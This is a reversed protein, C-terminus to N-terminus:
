KIIMKCSKDGAKIIYAGPNLKSKENIKMGSISFVEFNDHGLVNVHGDSVNILLNANNNNAVIAQIANPISGNEGYNAIVVWGLADAFKSTNKDTTTSSTDVQRRVRIGTTYGYVDSDKDDIENNSQHRLIAASHYNYTQLAGFVYPDKVTLQEDGIKLDSLQYTSGYLDTGRGAAILLNNDADLIGLGPTIALYSMTQATRVKSIGEEYMCIAKFGLNNVDWIRISIPGATASPKRLETIVIPTIGDPFPKDFKVNLTDTMKISSSLTRVECDLGGFNFNSNDKIALYPISEETSVTTAATAGQKTGPKLQYTFKTTSTSRATTIYNGPYLSKNKNSIIGMFIAPEEEFPTSYTADIANTNTITLNGYQYTDTGQSAGISVSVEESYRVKGDTDHDAIRYYIVGTENALNLGECAVSGLTKNGSQQMGLNAIQEWRNSGNAIKREVCISDTQKSNDHTWSISATKTKTAFTIKMNTPNQHYWPMFYENQDDYAFTSNYAKYMKGGESIAGATWIERKAEVANYCALRELWRNEPRDARKLVDTLWEGNKKSDNGSGWSYWGADTNFGGEGTWNAGNNWETAWVPLGTANYLAWLRDICGQPSQGGIYYHTAVFDIRINHLRCWNVYDSVWVTNPNCCAFTGIRKGSYLFDKAVDVLPYSSCKERHNTPVSTVYTYVEGAGSTNDPENQGLVHTCTGDSANINEWSEWAGKWGQGNSEGSEHHRQPVYEYNIGSSRGAGWNYHWSANFDEPGVDCTGKKAPWQWRFIRFFGLKGALEKRLTIKLDKTNAIYCHSYGTGDANNAVTCMYGRKLTFSRAKDVWPGSTNRQDGNYSEIKETCNDDAYFTVPFFETGDANKKDSHAMVIAGHRYISVRCNSNNVLATGNVKVYKLYKDIVDSPRINEFVVTADPNKIDISASTAFPKTSTITYDVATNLEVTGVAQEVTEVPNQSYATLGLALLMAVSFTRINM